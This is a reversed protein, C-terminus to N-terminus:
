WFVKVLGIISILALGAGLVRHFTSSDSSVMHDYAKLGLVHGIAVFPLLWLAAQWNLDVDYIVFTSMKFTVLIIWLIFLTERLQSKEVYRMVVAAILPAGILSTGSVYGGLVLLVGDIWKSQSKITYNFLWTMGYFLSISFVMLTLFQTPFNFLGLIGLFKPIIIIAMVKAVVSWNVNHLRSSLTLSSFFLLHLGVIPLFFIPDEDVLLLLPLGLASGGFGIGTRVFGTWIFILVIAVLQLTSFQIM